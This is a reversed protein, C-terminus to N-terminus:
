AGIEPEESFVMSLGLLKRRWHIIRQQIEDATELVRIRDGSHLVLITDHPTEIWLIQDDNILVQDGGTQTLWIM